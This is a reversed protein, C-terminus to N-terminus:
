NESDVKTGHVVIQCQEIGSKMGSFFCLRILSPPIEERLLVPYEKLFEELAEEAALNFDDVYSM